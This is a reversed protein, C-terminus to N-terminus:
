PQGIERYDPLHYELQRIAPHLLLPLTTLLIVLGTIVLLLGIGAGPKAGVLPAVATWGLQHVAPELINDVLPGIALFSITAGLYGLQSTLGFIRGQLDPPTKTQLISIFLANGIPLPIMLLYLSLGLLWPTRVLGYIVMMVGTFLYGPLLTHLRPRTGGWATILSAGSFAGLSMLGMLGSAYTQRGTVTILYPLSLGLPGNLLFNLLTLYLILILLPRRQRLFRFGVWMEQWVSGQAAQSERSRPPLPIHILAVATAAGVFTLLDVGIVGVVGVWAYMVGTLMPAVTGALPFAMQQWANARDRQAEPILMTTAADRAPQQFIAFSGQLLVVLYLMWVQFVGSVFALLLLLTGVAQGADALLLVWRRGWRDILVGALSGGVMGPLENFFSVLLLPATNGTHTFLWIGLAVSTMHSGILSFTQTLLILYFTQSQKM